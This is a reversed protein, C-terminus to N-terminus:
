CEPYLLILSGYGSLVFSIQQSPAGMEACVYCIVTKEKHQRVLFNPDLESHPYATERNRKLVKSVTGQAIGLVQAIVKKKSAIHWKALVRRYIGEHHWPLKGFMEAFEAPV